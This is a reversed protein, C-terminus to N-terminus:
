LYEIHLIELTGIYKGLHGAGNEYYRVIGKIRVAKPTAFNSLLERPICSWNIWLAKNLSTKLNVKDLSFLSYLESGFILEGKTDVLTSDYNPLNELLTNLPIKIITSTDLNCAACIMKQGKVSHLSFLLAVFIFLHKM